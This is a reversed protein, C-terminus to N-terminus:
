AEALDRHAFAAIGVGAAAVGLGVLWAVATWDPPAAPAPTIHLVPSTDRVWHNAKTIAAVIEVLFAWAVLGWTASAAWRPAVGFVLAGVGLVFVAPAAVNCGAEVMTAFGVAGHQTTTGVWAAVGTLVGGVGVLAFGLALRAALWRWRAVPRVLLADVYGGAEEGRVAAIEGAAACAVLGAAIVFVFGLYAVSSAGTAGLRAIVRELTPSGHVSRGAAQTVLGFVLGTAGLATLWGAISPWELRLGLAGAGNLLRLRAPPADRSRLVSAGLDRRGALVVSLAVAASTFVVIPVFALPKSGILPRLQEIWGLPSAWRLWAIRRDSDAVMRVLYAGALVGAGILDAQHRTAALESALMGVAIFMVAAAVVATALFVSAGVGIHM